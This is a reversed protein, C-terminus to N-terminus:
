RTVVLDHLLKNFNEELKQYEEDIDTLTAKYRDDLTKFKEIEEIIPREILNKVSRRLSSFWKLQMLGDIEEERLILIREQILAELKKSKESIDKNAQIRSMLLEQVNMILEYEESNKDYLKLEDRVAKTTFSNGPEGEKNQSLCDHLAEYEETGEIKSSLM